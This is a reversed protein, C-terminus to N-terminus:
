IKTTHSNHVIQLVFNFVCILNGNYCGGTCYHRGKEAKVASSPPPTGAGPRAYAGSCFKKPNGFAFCTTSRASGTESSLGGNPDNVCASAMCNGECDGQPVVLMALNYGHTASVSFFDLGGNGGM